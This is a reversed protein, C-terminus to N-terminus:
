KSKFTENYTKSEYYIIETASSDCLMIYGSDKFDDPQFTSASLQLPISTDDAYIDSALGPSDPAIYGYNGSLRQELATIEIKGESRFKKKLVM